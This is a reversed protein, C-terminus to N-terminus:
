SSRRSPHSTAPSRRGLSGARTWFRGTSGRGSSRPRGRGGRDHRVVARLPVLKFSDLLVLVGLFVVVPVLALVANLM